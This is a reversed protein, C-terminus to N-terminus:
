PRRSRYKVVDPEVHTERVNGGTHALDKNISWHHMKEPVVKEVTRYAHSFNGSICGIAQSRGHETSDTSRSMQTM